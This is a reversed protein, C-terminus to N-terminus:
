YNIILRNRFVPKESVYKNISDGNIYYKQESGVKFYEYRGGLSLNLRGIKKDFQTFITHNQRYNNGQFLDSRALTLENTTGSTM